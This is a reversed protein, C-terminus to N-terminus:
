IKALQSKLYDINNIEMADIGKSSAIYWSIWDVLNVLYLMQLLLRAGKAEIEVMTDVYKIIIEKSLDIRKNIRESYLESRIIVVALNSYKKSWGVLENHNMEPITNTFALTKSNENLQQKLRISVPSLVNGSYILPIKDVLRIGLEKAQSRINDQESVLLELSASLEKSLDIKLLELKFLIYLQAVFSYGFCARPAPWDDPLKIYDLNLKLANELLKGGSSIVVIKCDKEILKEFSSITEETNGSYSSVIALTNNDIWYPIDYGNSIIVPVTGYLKMIEAAFQGAIGSGGMGAIFVKNIKETHFDIKTNDSIIIAEELQKIYKSILKDM